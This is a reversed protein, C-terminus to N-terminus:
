HTQKQDSLWTQNKAAGHVTTWWVGRDIPNELCSQLPNEKGVVSSRGSESILCSDGPNAPPNKVALAVQSAMNELTHCGVGTNKGPSVGYVSSGSPSCDLPECLILCLHAVLCLVIVFLRKLCSFSIAYWTVLFVTFFSPGSSKLHVSCSIMINVHSIITSTHIM